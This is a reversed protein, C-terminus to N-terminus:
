RTNNPRVVPLAVKSSAERGTGLQGSDNDGWCAVHSTTLLACGFGYAMADRGLGVGVDKAQDLGAIPHAELKTSAWSRAVPEDWLGGEASLFCDVGGRVDVTCIPSDGVAIARTPQKGSWAIVLEPAHTWFDGVISSWCRAEGTRSVACAYQEGIAVQVPEFADGPAWTALAPPLPHRWCWLKSEAVACVKGHGLAMATVRSLQATQLTPTQVGHANIPITRFTGWCRVDDVFAACATNTTGSLAVLHAAGDFPMKVPRGLETGHLEVSGVAGGGTQVLDGGASGWCYVHGSLDVACTHADGASVSAIPPLGGVVHPRALSTGVAHGDLGVGVEGASNDGWCVVKHGTTVACVHARGVSLQRVDHLLPDPPVTVAVSAAAADSAPLALEVTNPTARTGSCAALLLALAALRVAAIYREAPGTSADCPQM